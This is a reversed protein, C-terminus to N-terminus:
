RLVVHEVSCMHVVFSFPYLRGGEESRTVMQGGRCLYGHSERHYFDPHKNPEEQAAIVREDHLPAGSDPLFAPSVM